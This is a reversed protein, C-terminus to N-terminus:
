LSWFMVVLRTKYQKLKEPCIYRFHMRIGSLFSVRPQEPLPEHTGAFEVPQFGAGGDRGVGVMQHCESAPRQPCILCSPSPSDQRIPNTGEYFFGRLSEGAGQVVSSVALGQVPFCAEM